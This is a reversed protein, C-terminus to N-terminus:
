KAGGDFERAALARGADTLGYVAKTGTGGSDTREAYGEATLKYVGQRAAPGSCTDAKAVIETVLAPGHQDLYGLAFRPGAALRGGTPTDADAQTIVTRGPEFAISASFKFPEIDRGKEVDFNIVKSKPQSTVKLLLDVAGKLASSGRYDGSKGTHHIVVIAAQYKDALRRLEMFVPQTDKVSNEDGGVMIDVLADIIVFRAGTEGIVADLDAVCAPDRMNFMALSTYALPTGADSGHARMIEGLRRALRRPGSEEDVILVTCQKTKFQLWDVGDSVTYTKKSGGEGIVLNVSPVSYLPEIIYEQPPQDELAEAAWHVVAPRRAGIEDPAEPPAEPAWEEYEAATM